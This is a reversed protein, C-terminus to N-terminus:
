IGGGLSFFIVSFVVRWVEVVWCEVELLGFRECLRVIAFVDCSNWVGVIRM